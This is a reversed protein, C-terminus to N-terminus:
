FKKLLEKLEAISQIKSLAIKIDTVNPITKLYQPAIGRMALVVAREPYYKSLIAAHELIQQKKDIKPNIGQVNAFIEPRGIAARGIMVAACGTYSLIHEFTEQSTCDGSAIVPISVSNVVDKVIDLNVAGSYGQEVTRGHVTIASAGARECMKAFEVAVIHNKDKGIRFKVTIPKKTAAVCARIIKEALEFNNLLASGDGNSTIKPTPCGMNIDVIDFKQLLPNRCAKAMVDPDHGFLQVAVPTDGSETELLVETKKNNFELAKASVMETYTLGAGYTHAFKRLAMDSFGAMPALVANNKIEVDAIKFPKM